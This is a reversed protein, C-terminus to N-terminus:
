FRGSVGVYAVNSTAAVTPAFTATPPAPRTPRPLNGERSDEDTPRPAAPGSMFATDLASAVVGGVVMGTGMESLGCLFADQSCHATALGVAGGWFPLTVRLALSGLARWYRQHRLHVVPGVLPYSIAGAAIMVDPVSRGQRELAAGVLFLGISGASAAAMEIQYGDSGQEEARATNAAAVSLLGAM